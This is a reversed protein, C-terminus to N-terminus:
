SLHLVATIDEAIKEPDQEGNIEILAGAQRFVDIASDTHEYYEKLREAVVHDDARRDIKKRLELRREVEKDSVAIYIVSFPRELWALSSVVLEAEPLKRNFGDFIVSADEELAFLSKQYLYMAFWHPALLGSDIESKVKRGIPTDEEAIARFQKGASIVPWGTARSLLKAQTGKGCGPKGVFFITKTEAM